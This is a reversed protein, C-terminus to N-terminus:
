EDIADDFNDPIDDSSEPERHFVDYDKYTAGKRKKSKKKGLYVVKVEEGIKTRKLRTDLVTSGWISIDGQGKVELTYLISENPGVGSEIDVLLGEISDGAKEPNWSEGFEVKKWDSM